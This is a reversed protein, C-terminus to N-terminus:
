QVEALMKGRLKAVRGAGCLAQRPKYLQVAFRKGPNM